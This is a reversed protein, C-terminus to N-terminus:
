KGEPTLRGGPAGNEIQLYTNRITTEMLLRLSRREVGPPNYPNHLIPKGVQVVGSGHVTLPYFVLRKGTEEYYIEGLRVFTHQFPQMKTVPDTPLRNDEPFILLFKNDRLVDMSMQLTEQLRDYNGRFVPICGLSYFLPVTIKCLAESIWRSLPPKFHLQREIFDAEIWQPALDKDMMDGISWPYLRFPISCVTAIPGHADLHNAIFVGPGQRPLNEEGALEGSWLFLDFLGVMFQYMGDNM